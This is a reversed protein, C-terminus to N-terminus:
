YLKNNTPTRSGLFVKLLIMGFEFSIILLFLSWLPQLYPFEIMFSNFYGMAEILTDHVGIPLAVKPVIAFIFALINVLFQLILNIIM